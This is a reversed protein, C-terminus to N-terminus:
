RNQELRTAFEQIRKALWETKQLQLWHGGPTIEIEFNKAFSEMEPKTAPLVFPDDLGCIQLVPVDTKTKSGGQKGLLSYLFYDKFNEESGKWGAKDLAKLFFGRGARVALANLGPALFIAMYWSRKIQEPNKLRAQFQRISLGGFVVMGKLHEGLYPILFWAQPVGLDHAVIIIKKGVDMLPKLKELHQAMLDSFTEAKPRDHLNFRVHEPSGMKEILPLWTDSNDPYGHIFYFVTDAKSTMIPNNQDKRYLGRM